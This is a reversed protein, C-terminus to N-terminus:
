WQVSLGGVDRWGCSENRPGNPAELSPRTELGVKTLRSPFCQHSPKDPAWGSVSGAMRRRRIYQKSTRDTRSQLAAFYRCKGFTVGLSHTQRSGLMCTRFGERIESLCQVLRHRVLGVECVTVFLSSASQLSSRNFQDEKATARYFRPRVPIDVAVNDGRGQDAFM